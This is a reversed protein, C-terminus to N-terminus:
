LASQVGTFRKFTFRCFSAPNMLRLSRSMSFPFHSYGLFALDKDADLAEVGVPMDPVDAYEEVPFYSTDTISTLQPPRPAQMNRLADWRFSEFFPHARIEDIGARQEGWTMLRHRWSDAASAGPTPTPFRM